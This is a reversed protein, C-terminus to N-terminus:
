ACYLGVPSFDAYYMGANMAFTLKQGRAGLLAALRELRKIPQGTDDRLFLRLREKRLNVRCVTLPKGAIEATSFEVGSVSSVLALAASRPAV